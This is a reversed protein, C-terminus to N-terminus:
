FRLSGLIGTYSMYSMLLAFILIAGLVLNTHFPFTQSGM